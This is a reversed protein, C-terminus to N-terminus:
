NNLENHTEVGLKAKLDEIIIYLCPLLLLATLTVILVGFGLSLAMPILFRAQRSTEFIIPMLGVFTTATTLFIPRFRRMGAEVIAALAPRNEEVRLRNAYDVFVLSDNVAIGALAILGMISMISLSFDLLLHGVVAGVLGFPIPHTRRIINM